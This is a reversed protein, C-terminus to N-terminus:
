LRKPGLRSLQVIFSLSKKNTVLSDYPWDLNLPFSIPLWNKNHFPLDVIYFAQLFPSVIIAM